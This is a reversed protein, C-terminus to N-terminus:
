QQQQDLQDNSGNNNNDGGSGSGDNANNSNKDGEDKAIVCPTVHGITMGAITFLLVSPIATTKLTNSM